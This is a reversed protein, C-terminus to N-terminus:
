LVSQSWTGKALSLTMNELKAAERNHTFARVFAELGKGTSNKGQVRQM